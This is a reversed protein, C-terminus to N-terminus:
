RSGLAHAYWEALVGEAAKGRISYDPALPIAIYNYSFPYTGVIHPRAAVAKLTGQYVMAQEVPDNVLVLDAEPFFAVLAVEWVDRDGVATGDFSGYAISSL